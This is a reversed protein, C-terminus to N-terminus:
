KLDMCHAFFSTTAPWDSFAGEVEIENALVDLLKFMDADKKIVQKISQYYWGGGNKLNGSRELSWAILKLGSRKAEIAYASPVITGNKTTVLMWLPPALYNVGMDKLESMSPKFSAPSNPDISRFRGDLYVAQKAFEPENQIWYLIDDLNFSQLYVDSPAVGAEKYADVLKQAYDSQSMGEFPMSVSPSKLEPTFKVDLQKFLAIAEKHSLLTGAQDAYLDTRSRATGDLFAELTKAKPNSADMKGTLQKFESLTIESTRCEAKAKASGKAPEFPRICTSAVKTRLINTTTALDKQSHRCVLEKDKTFTVDCEIIGAGMRAAAKYGEKTHEPFQLPAGRHAISFLSKGVAEGKLIRDACASLKAKLPGEELQDVLAFPRAGLSASFDAKANTFVILPLIFLAFRMYM